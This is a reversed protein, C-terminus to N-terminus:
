ISCPACILMYYFHLLFRSSELSLIKLSINSNFGINYVAITNYFWNKSNTKDVCNIEYSVFLLALTCQMAKLSTKSLHHM